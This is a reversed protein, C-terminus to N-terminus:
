RVRRDERPAVDPDDPGLEKMKIALVRQALPIEESFKGARHLEIMKASLTAAESQQAIAPVSICASGIALMAAAILVAREVRKM